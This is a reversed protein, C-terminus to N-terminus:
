AARTRATPARRALPLVAYARRLPAAAHEAELIQERVLNTVPVEATPILFFEQEGRRRSCTRRSSRCSAPARLAQRAVLYPAYVERTATSAAHAPRAHVPDLARHLRAVGGTLVVFRAGSIRGAAEFDLLASSRASRSTISRRRLRVRAAHGLPAGRRERDRRARRARDRAAPEAPRAALEDFEAQVAALEPELATSSAHRADGGEGAAARHGAGQAKAKGVAKAHANREARLRTPQSRRPRAGSRSRAAARSTSRSAAARSTARRRSRSRIPAAQPDLMPTRVQQPLAAFQLPIDGNQSRDGCGRWRRPSGSRSGARRGARLLAGAGHRRSLVNEGAAFADPEDHAYRYGKGYGLEKMLATPANRLQLPVELTGHESRTRWPRASRRTSRMARRRARGHVGRGPRHALEGEPSGLREYTTALGRAGADLARPDANGIDESAMRVVRRAVYLPDCGGDLMRCFWYLAADPDTGRVAKHLASIQDYFQEGKKDFRRYGGAAVERAIAETIRAPEGAARRSRRRDRAPELARRADGDAAARSRTSRRPTSRRARARRTRARADLARELM